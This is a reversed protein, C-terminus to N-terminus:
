DLEAGAITGLPTEKGIAIEIQFDKQVLVATCKNSVLFLFATFAEIASPEYIM